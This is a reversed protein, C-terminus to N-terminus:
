ARVVKLGIVAEGPREGARFFRGCERRMVYPREDTDAPCGQGPGKCAEGVHVVM